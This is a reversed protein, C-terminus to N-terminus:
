ALRSRLFLLCLGDLSHVSTVIGVAPLLSVAGDGVLMEYQRWRGSIGNHHPQHPSLAQLSAGAAERLRRSRSNRRECLGTPTHRLQM